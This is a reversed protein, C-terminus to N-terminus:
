LKCKYSAKESSNSVQILYLGPEPKVCLEAHHTGVECNMNQEEILRGNIDFLLIQHNGSVGTSFSVNFESNYKQNVSLITLKEHVTTCTTSTIGLETTKGDLDVQRLRYYTEPGYSQYDAFQYMTITNTNGSGQVRAISDFTAGNESREVVFYHNNTESATYWTLLPNGDACSANFQMMEVPLPITLPCFYQQNALLGTSGTFGWWVNPNGGFVNNIYDYVCSIRQSGDVFVCLTNTAPDWTVRLTHLLGDALLADLPDAQVPGCLPAGPGQMDGDIEIATHDAAIDFIHSPNDNDYTDFEVVVANSIGGAGLQGGNNGCQSIGQPSNQFVFACGDAGGASAGFYMQVSYDFASAFSITGRNWACGNQTTSASTLQACNAGGSPYNLASGYLCYYPNSSTSTTFSWVSCGTAVGAANKPVVKWYYTTNDALAGPIMFSTATMNAYFAPSATTGFYVDYSTASSCGNSAPSTWSFNASCPSVDTAGNAPSPTSACSPALPTCCGSVNTGPTTATQQIPLIVTSAAGLIEVLMEDPYTGDNTRTVIIVDGDAASFTFDEPGTLGVLAINTLVPVGNVTVTITGGNWGDGYEDTLRITHTCASCITASTTFSRTIAGTATGFSNRPVIKWYYTTSTNLAGTNYTTGTFNGVLPPTASTGFYVDYSTAANCGTVAPETWNLAVGCCNQNTAGNAPTNYTALGPVPNVASSTFSWTLAGVANGIANKPVIKWYYTTSATLFSTSYSTATTNDILPPTASTGFYVDYSTATNCGNATPADWTMTVGCVDQDIAGNSPSTYSALGPATPACCGLVSLGPTIPPQQPALIINSSGGTISVRMESPTGGDLIRTVNIIDGNAATFTYDQPGAGSALTIGTLVAVGNVTVNVTGGEWGDGFTDILSITHICGTALTSIFNAVLTPNGFGAIIESSATKTATQTAAGTIARVQLGSITIIDDNDIRNNDGSRYTVTITTSSVVMSITTIDAVNSSVLGVGAQFEFNAPVTITFSYDTNKAAIPFDGNAGEDIVINGLAYYTSPFTATSINLTPATVSVAAQSSKIGAMILCFLMLLSVLKIAVNTLQTKRVRINM